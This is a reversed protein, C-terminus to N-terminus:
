GERQFWAPFFDPIPSGIKQIHLFLLASYQLTKFIPFILNFISKTVVEM